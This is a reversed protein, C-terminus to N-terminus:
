PPQGLVQSVPVQSQGRSGTVLKLHQPVDQALLSSQGPAQPPPVRSCGFPHQAWCSQQWNQATRFPPHSKGPAGLLGTPEEGYPFTSSHLQIRSPESQGQSLCTLAVQFSSLSFPKPGLQFSFGAAVSLPSPMTSQM